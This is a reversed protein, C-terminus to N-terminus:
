TSVYTGKGSQPRRVRAVDRFGLRRYWQLPWDDEDAGVIVREVGEAELLRLMAIIMANGYGHGRWHPFVDVEQLRAWGHNPYPMRFRGIAGVMEGDCEAAFVDLGIRAREARLGDVMRRAETKDVGLEAEVDIRSDTYRQWAAETDILRLMISNRASSVGAASRVLLAKEFGM